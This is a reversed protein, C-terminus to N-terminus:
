QKCYICKPKELDLSYDLRDISLKVKETQHLLSKGLKIGEM